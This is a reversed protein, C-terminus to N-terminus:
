NFFEQLENYFIEFEQRFSSGIKNDHRIKM